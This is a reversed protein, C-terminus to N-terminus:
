HSATPRRPRPNSASAPWWSACDHAWVPALWSTANNRYMGRFATMNDNLRTLSKQDAIRRRARGTSHLHM